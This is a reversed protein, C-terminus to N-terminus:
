SITLRNYLRAKSKGNCLETLKKRVLHGERKKLHERLNEAKPDYMELISFDFEWWGYKNWDDQLRHNLHVDRVLLNRHQRWRNTVNNTQGIYVSGTRKNRIEYIGAPDKIYLRKKVSLPKLSNSRKILLSSPSKPVLKEKENFEKFIQWAKQEAIVKNKTKLSKVLYGGEKKLIRIQWINKSQDKRKYLYIKEDDDLFIGGKM